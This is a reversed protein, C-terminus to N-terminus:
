MDLVLRIKRCNTDNTRTFMLSNDIFFLHSIVPWKVSCKFGNLHGLTQANRILCSLGEVYILFLYPSLSDGQRLGRTPVINGCAEGNLKLSYSISSICRLVLNIWRKPFGMKLMMQEFFVWEVRDNAKSMNLKIAISGHKRKRRKHKHLCEFGVIRNSIAKAIVKYLVNCFGIPRYDSVLELSQIKSILIIVTSNYEKVSGGNNLVDLCCNRVSVGIHDWYKQYFVVPLGDKGPTKLPGMDFVTKSGGFSEEASLAEDLKDKLRIIDIWSKPIVVSNALKLEQQRPGRFGMDDLQCEKLAERFDALAIWNKRLGGFKEREYCMENFDGM